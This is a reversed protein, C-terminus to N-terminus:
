MGLIEYLENGLEWVHYNRIRPPAFALGRASALKDVEDLHVGTLGAEYARVGDYASLAFKWNLGSFCHVVVQPLESRNSVDDWVADIEQLRAEIHTHMRDLEPNQNGQTDQSLVSGDVMIGPDEKGVRLIVQTARPGKTAHKHLAEVGMSRDIGVPVITINIDDPEEVVKQQPSQAGQDTPLLSAIEKEPVVFKTTLLFFILLLFVIDILPTLNSKEEEDHVTTAAM